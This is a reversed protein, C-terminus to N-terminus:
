FLSFVNEFFALLLPLVNSSLVPYCKRSVAKQLTRSVVRISLCISQFHAEARRTVDIMVEEFPPNIINTGVNWFM